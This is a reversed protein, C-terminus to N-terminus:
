PRQVTLRYPAGIPETSRIAVRLRSEGCVTYDLRPRLSAGERSARLAKGAGGRLILEYAGRPQGTPVVSVLGDLPTPFERVVVGGAPVRGSLTFTTRGTWPVLTDRRIAAFAGADPRLAPTWSWKVEAEPFHLHAFAEAFAESPDEYYHTGRDNPFFSGARHGQCVQEYSAWRETGWNLAAPFPAPLARHAAVHHGYEHALVMERSAGDPAPTDDGSLIVKDQGGFYCAQADFGCDFSLQFPTDLQITLSEVESGHLFTGVTRAIAAPDAANCSEACAPTAVIAITAESGDGIPYRGTGGFASASAAIRASAASPRERVVDRLPVAPRPVSLLARPPPVRAARGPPTEAAEGAQPAFLLIM